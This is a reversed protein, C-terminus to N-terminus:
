GVFFFKLDRWSNQFKRGKVVQLMKANKVSKYENPRDLKQNSPFLFFSFEFFLNQFHASICSNKQLNESKSDWQRLIYCLEIMKKQTKSNLGTSFM